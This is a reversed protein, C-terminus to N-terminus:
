PRASPRLLGSALAAGAGILVTGLGAATLLLPWGGPPSWQASEVFWRPGARGVASQRANFYWAMMQLGAVSAAVATALVTTVHRLRGPWRTDLAYGAVLVSTVALPTVYRTQVAFGFPEQTTVDLWVLLAFGGLLWAVIALRERAGGLVLGALLTGGLLVHGVTLVERPLYTDLWGFTGVAQDALPALRRFTHGLYDGATSLPAASRPVYAATWVAALATVAALSALAAWAVAGGRRVSDAGRRRGILVVPLAIGAAVWLPGLPRATGLVVGSVALAVWTWRDSEGRALALLGVVYAIAATAEVGATSLTSSLFVTMPTVAVFVALRTWGPPTKAVAIGLMFLSLMAAAARAAYLGATASGAVRAGLGLPVYLAPFYSSVHSPDEVITADPAPTYPPPQELCTAAAFTDKHCAWRRDQSYPPPYRFARSAARDWRERETAPEGPWAIARGRAQGFATGVAKVYHAGEDPAAGAPNGWTWAALLLGMGILWVVVGVRGFVATSTTTTTTTSPATM